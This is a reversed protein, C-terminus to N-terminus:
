WVLKTNSFTQFSYNDMIAGNYLMKKINGYKHVYKLITTIFPYM